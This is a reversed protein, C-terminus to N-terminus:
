LSADIPDLKPILPIADFSVPSATDDHYAIQLILFQLLDSVHSYDLDLPCFCTQRFGCIPKEETWVKLLVNTVYFYPDRYPLASGVLWWNNFHPAGHSEFLVAPTM